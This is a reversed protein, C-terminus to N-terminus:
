QGYYFYLSNIETRTQGGGYSNHCKIQSTNTQLKVSVSGVYPYDKTNGGGGSEKKSLMSDSGLSVSFTTGMTAPHIVIDYHLGVTVGAPVRLSGNNTMTQSGITLDLVKGGMRVHGDEYKVKGDEDWEEDKPPAFDVPLGTIRFDRQGTVTQGCFTASATFPYTDFSVPVETQDPLLLLNQGKEAAQSVERFSCSYGCSYNANALIKQSVSLRASLSYVTLRECSNAAAVDGESYKTFSSYGGMTISLSPNPITFSRTKTMDYVSGDETVFFFSATYTGSPLFPWDQSDSGNSHLAQTGSVTRVQTGASNVIRAGWTGVSASLTLDTGILDGSSDYKHVPIVIPAPLCEYPITQTLTATEVLTEASVIAGNEEPALSLRVKLHDAARLTASVGSPLEIPMSVKGGDSTRVASFSLRVTEGARVYVCHSPENGSIYADFSEPGEVLEVCVSYSSYYRDFRSKEDSDAGFAASVLANGVKCPITVSTTEGASVTAQAQGVYYPADLAILPNDGYSARIGYTDPPCSFARDPFRDDYVKEGLSNHILLNFDTVAPAGIESPTGKTQLSADALTLLLSGEASPTGQEKACGAVCLLVLIYSSLRNM